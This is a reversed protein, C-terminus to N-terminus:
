SYRADTEGLRSSQLQLKCEPRQDIRAALNVEGLNMEIGVAEGRTGDFFERSCGDRAM